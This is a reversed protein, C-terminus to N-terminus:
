EKEELWTKLHTIASHIQYGVNSVSIDLRQAIEAYPMGECLRLRLVQEQRPSLRQLSERLRRQMEQQQLPDPPDAVAVCDQFKTGDVSQPTTAKKRLMDAIRQRCVTYLWARAHDDSGFPVGEACCKALRLFTEQVADQAAAHDHLRSLAFALLASQYRHVLRAADNSQLANSIKEM